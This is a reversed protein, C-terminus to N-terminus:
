NRHILVADVHFIQATFLFLELSTFHTVKSHSAASQLACYAEQSLLQELIQKEWDRTILLSSFYLTRHM